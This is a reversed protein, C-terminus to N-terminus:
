VFVNVMVQPKDSLLIGEGTVFVTVILTTAGGDPTIGKRFLNEHKVRLLFGLKHFYRIEYPPAVKV